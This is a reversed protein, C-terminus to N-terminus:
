HGGQRAGQSGLPVIATRAGANTLADIYAPDAASFPVNGRGVFRIPDYILVTVPHGRRVVEAVAGPLTPDAKTVM